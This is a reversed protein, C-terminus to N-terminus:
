EQSNWICGTQTVRVQSRRLLLTHTHTVSLESAGPLAREEKWSKTFSIARKFALGVSM